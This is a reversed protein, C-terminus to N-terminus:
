RTRVTTISYPAVTITFSSGHVRQESRAISTSGTGYTYAEVFGCAFSGELSITVEYAADPDKNVLMVNINGDVRQVAHASVLSASSTAGLITSRPEAFQSM